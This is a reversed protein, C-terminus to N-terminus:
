AARRYFYVRAPPLNYWVRPGAEVTLGLAARVGESVPPHAGYTFQIYPAGPRLIAFAAGVIARQVEKPMSLLPLGSVVAGVDGPAVAAEQAPANIIAVGPFRRALATSFSANMEYLSLNEPLVGRSLIAETIKGTGPGFEVVRGTDRGLDRVMAQALMRSSPVVASIERPNRLLQGVFLALDNTM